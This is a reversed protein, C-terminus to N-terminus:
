VGKDVGFVLGHENVSGRLGLENGVGLMEHEEQGEEEDDFDANDKNDADIVEDGFAM